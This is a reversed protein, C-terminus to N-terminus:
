ASRLFPQHGSLTMLQNTQSVNNDLAFANKVRVTVSLSSM